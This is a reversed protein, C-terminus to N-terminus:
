LSHAIFRLFVAIDETSYINTLNKDFLINAEPSFEDDGKWLIVRLFIGDFTEIEAAIDGESIKKGRFRDTITLLKEPAHGFKKIIPKIAGERFAPYYFGGGEIDKFSIWEGSATYGSKQTGMLYHLLLIALFDKAPVKSFTSIITKAKANIEYTDNLLRVFFRNEGSLSGLGEWGKKIAADYGM